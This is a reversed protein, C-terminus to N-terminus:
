AWHLTIGAKGSQQSFYILHYMCLIQGMYWQTCHYTCLFCCSDNNALAPTVHVFIELALSTAPYLLVHCVSPARLQLSPCSRGLEQWGHGTLIHPLHQQLTQTKKWFLQFDPTKYLCIWDKFTAISKYKSFDNHPSFVVM